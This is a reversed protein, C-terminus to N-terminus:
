AGIHLKEQAWGLAEAYTAGLGDRSIGLAEARLDVDVWDGQEYSEALRLLAAQPGSGQLLAARVAPALELPGLAAEMDMGLLADLLSFLGVLFFAGTDERDLQTALQECFRARRLAVLAVERAVGDSGVLSSVLLLSVWRQLTGRGVLRLAHDISEIGRGGLSASNAMTLLKYALSLDTGLTAVIEADRVRTDQLQKVLQMATLQAAPVVKRQVVQPRSFYHGQFLDLGLAECAKRQDRTEVREAVLKRGFPKLTKVLEALQAEPHGLVDLKVIHAHKLLRLSGASLVFDDLAITYGESAMREVEAVLADDVVVNELVEIVVEDKPLLEYTRQKILDGPFNIWAKTGGTLRGLGLALVSRLITEVSMATATAGAASDALADRRYLLEYGVPANSADFIPQRAVFVDLSAPTAAAEKANAVAGV